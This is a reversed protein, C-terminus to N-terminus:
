SGLAVVAAAVTRVGASKLAAACADLTSGTTCVDDVLVVIDPPTQTVIFAHHLASRREHHSRHAQAGTPRVRQLIPAVPWGADRSVAQALVEAQNWGREFRRTWHLPVPCLVADFSPLLLASRRLLEGLEDRLARVNRYKFRRIAQRLLFSEGYTGAATLIDLDHMGMAELQRRDLRRPISTRLIRRETETM